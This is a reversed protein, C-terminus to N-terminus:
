PTFRATATGDVGLLAKGYTEYAVPPSVLGHRAAVAQDRWFRQIPNGEAFVGSGHATLLLSIAETVRDVSWGIDARVRARTEPDLPRGGRDSSDLDEAARTAHLEATDLLMAARAIDLQFAVSDRHRAFSTYGIPKEPASKMVAHLVAWGLGLQPGLPALPASESSPTAAPHSGAAPAHLVRHEPVLAREVVITSSGSSRMGAAHWDDVVRRHAAPVLLHATGTAAGHEDRLTAAVMAWTAHEAGAIDHWSGSLRYGGEVRRATGGVEDGISVRADADAGFVDDQAQEPFRRMAAAGATLMAVVWATGGDGLAVERGVDMVARHGLGYGGYRHPVCVRFAGVDVLAELSEDVVRRDREGQQANAAILPRVMRIRKLVSAIDGPLADAAPPRLVTEM